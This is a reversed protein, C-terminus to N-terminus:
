AASSSACRRASLASRRREGVKPSSEAALAARVAIGIAGADSSVKAARRSGSRRGGVRWTGSVARRACGGLEVGAGRDEAHVPDPGVVVDRARAHLAAQLM